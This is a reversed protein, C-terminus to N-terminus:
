PRAACRPRKFGSSTMGYDLQLLRVRRRSAGAMRSLIRGPPLGTVAERRATALLVGLRVYAVTGASRVALAGGRHAQARM